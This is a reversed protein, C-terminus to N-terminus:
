IEKLVKEVVVFHSIGFFHLPSKEITHFFKQFLKGVFGFKRELKDFAPFVHKHFVIKGETGKFLKKIDGNSYNRVHPSFKKRVFKPMWPLFPINGWIYKGRFFMGHTEFPWGRNPTFIIFKGGSKLVRLAEEVSKRDNEVHELVENSFVIDFKDDEFELKEAPCVKLQSASLQPSLASLKSISEPDVDFGYINKWDTFNSFAELWVGEGCGQDLITKNKLEVQEIVKDLRRQFGKSFATGPKGLHAFKTESELVKM